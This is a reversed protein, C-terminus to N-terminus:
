WVASVCTCLTLVDRWWCIVLYSLPPHSQILQRSTRTSGAMCVRLWAEDPDSRMSDADRGDTAASSGVAEHRDYAELHLDSSSRAADFCQSLPSKQTRGPRENITPIEKLRRLRQKRQTSRYFDDPSTSPQLQLPMESLVYPASTM